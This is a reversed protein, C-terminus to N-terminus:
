KSVGELWQDPSAAAFSREIAATTARRPPLCGGRAGAAVVRRPAEIRPQFWIVPAPNRECRFQPGPCPQRGRDHKPCHPTPIEALIAAEAFINRSRAEAIIRMNGPRFPQRPNCLVLTLEAKPNLPLCGEFECQSTGKAPRL